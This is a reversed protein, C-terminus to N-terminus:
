NSKLENLINIQSKLDEIEDKSVLLSDKLMLIELFTKEKDSNMEEMAQKNQKIEVKLKESELKAELQDNKAKSINSTLAKGDSTFKLFLLLILTLIISISFRKM